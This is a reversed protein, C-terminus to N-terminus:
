FINNIHKGQDNPATKKKFIGEVLPRYHLKENESLPQSMKLQEFMGSSLMTSVTVSCFETVM